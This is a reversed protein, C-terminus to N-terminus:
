LRGFMRRSGRGCLDTGPAHAQDHRTPYCLFGALKRSVPRSEMGFVDKILFRIFYLSHDYHRGDGHVHYGGSHAWPHEGAENMHNEPIGRSNVFREFLARVKPWQSYERNSTLLHRSVQATVALLSPGDKRCNSLAKWLLSGEFGRTESSFVVTPIANCGDAIVVHQPEPLVDFSYSTRLSIPHTNQAWEFDVSRSVVTLQDIQDGLSLLLFNSSVCAVHDIVQIRLKKEEPFLGMTILSFASNRMIVKANCEGSSKNYREGEGGSVCTGKLRPAFVRDEPHFM